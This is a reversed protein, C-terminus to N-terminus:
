RTDGDNDHRRRVEHKHTDDSAATQLADLIGQRVHQSIANVPPSDILINGIHGIAFYSVSATM